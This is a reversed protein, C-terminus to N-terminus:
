VINLVVWKSTGKQWMLESVLVLLSLKLRDFELLIQKQPNNMERQARCFM